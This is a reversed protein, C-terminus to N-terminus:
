KARAGYSSPLDILRKAYEKKGCKSCQRSWCAVMGKGIAADTSKSPIEKMLDLTPEYWLHECNAQITKLYAVREKLERLQEDM